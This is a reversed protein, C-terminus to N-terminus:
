GRAREMMKEESLQINNLVDLVYDLDTNTLKNMPIFEDNATEVTNITIAKATLGYHQLDFGYGEALIDYRSDASQSFFKAIKLLKKKM